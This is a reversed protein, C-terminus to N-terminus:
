WFMFGLLLLLIYTGSLLGYNFLLRLGFIRRTVKCCSIDAQFIIASYSSVGKRLWDASKSDDVEFSLFETLVQFILTM